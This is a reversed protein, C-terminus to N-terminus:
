KMIKQQKQIIFILNLNKFYYLNDSKIYSVVIRYYNNNYYHQLYPNLLTLEQAQKSYFNIHQKALIRGIIKNYLLNEFATQTQGITIKYSENIKSEKTSNLYKVYNIHLSLQDQIKYYLFCIFRQTM